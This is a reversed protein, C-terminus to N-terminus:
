DAFAGDKVEVADFLPEPANTTEALKEAMGKLVRQAQAVTWDNSSAVGFAASMDTRKSKWEKGYLATGIEHVNTRLAKNAGLLQDPLAPRQPEANNRVQPADHESDENGAGVNFLKVLFYKHGSTIAKYMAKDPVSYDSGRGFWMMTLTNGDSDAIMMEIDVRVDYRHGQKWPIAEIHEDVLAPIIVLGVRAMECGVRDLIKDASIYDYKQQQNRKDPELAGVAKSVAAIKSFLNGTTM